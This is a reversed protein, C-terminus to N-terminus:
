RPAHRSHAVTGTGRQATSAHPAKATVNLGSSKAFCQLSQGVDAISEFDDPMTDIKIVCTSLASAKPQLLKNYDLASDQRRALPQPASAM